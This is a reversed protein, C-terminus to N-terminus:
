KYTAIELTNGDPDHFFIQELGTGSQLNIRFPVNHARLLIKVQEVDQSHFAIHDTTTSIAESKNSQSDGQILHIQISGRVLWAGQFRFAPRPIERFGMIERYFHLSANWDQCERSIHHVYDIPIPNM